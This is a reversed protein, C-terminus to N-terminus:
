KNKNYNFAFTQMNNITKLQNTNILNKAWNVKSFLISVLIMKVLWNSELLAFTLVHPIKPHYAFTSILAFMVVWTIMVSSDNISGYIVGAGRICNNMAAYPGLIIIEAVLVWELQTALKAVKKAHEIDVLSNSLPPNLLPNIFFSLIFLIIALICAIVLSWAITYRSNQKAASIENRGLHSLVLVAVITNMGPWILKTFQSILLATSASARIDPHYKYLFLSLLITSLSFIIENVAIFWGRKFINKLLRWTLNWYNVVYTARKKFIFVCLLVISLDFGRSAITSFVALMVAEEPTKAVLIMLVPDLICNLCLAAISGFLPITPRTDQRHAIAFPYSFAYFCQGIMAYQLYMSAWKNVKEFNALEEPTIKSLDKGFNGISGAYTTVSWQPFGIYAILFPINLVVSGLIMYNITEKFKHYNKSGLYQSSYVSCAYCVAVTFITPLYLLQTALITATKADLGQSQPAYTALFFNDVYAVVTIIINQIIAPFFLKLAKKVFEKDGFIKRFNLKFFSNQKKNILCSLFFIVVKM